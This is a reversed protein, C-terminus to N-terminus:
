TLLFSVVRAASFLWLYGIRVAPTPSRISFPQIWGLILALEAQKAGTEQGQTASVYSAPISSQLVSASHSWMCEVWCPSRPQADWGLLWALWAVKTLSPLPMSYNSM